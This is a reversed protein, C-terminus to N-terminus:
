KCPSFGCALCRSCGEAVEYKVSNCEPCTEKNPAQIQAPGCTVCSTDSM